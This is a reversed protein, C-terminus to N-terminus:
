CNANQEWKFEGKNELTAIASPSAWVIENRRLNRKHTIGAGTFGDKEIKGALSCPVNKEIIRKWGHTELPVYIASEYGSILVMGKLNLITSILDVHDENTMEHPYTGGSRASMPYPPDLYFLTKERDFSSLAVRWDINEIQVLRLRDAAENIRECAQVFGKSTTASGGASLRTSSTISRGWGAGFKGGFSMRSVVFWQRAREIPDKEDQWNAYCYSYEERAYPTAWLKSYLEQPTNRLVTFFNVLGSDIDNYIEVPSLPKAFLVHAAGGFVEVYTKHPPFVAVISKALAYKGGM